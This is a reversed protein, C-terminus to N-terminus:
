EKQWKSTLLDNEEDIDNLVPLLGYTLQLAACKRTTDVFVTSSSWRINEFVESCLKKLGLLYYGGDEAPGIVVDYKDLCIFANMIIEANLEPCDTGIIVVRDYGDKFASAFANNMREGLNIGNQLQKSYHETNWADEDSVFDSYFVIKDVPLCNMVSVTHEVLQKYVYLAADNGITAALRTKVKGAEPNKAFILLVQKTM